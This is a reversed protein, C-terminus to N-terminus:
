QSRQTEVIEGTRKGVRKWLSEGEIGGYRGVRPWRAVIFM